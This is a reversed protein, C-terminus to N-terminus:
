TNSFPNLKRTVPSTTIMLPIVPNSATNIVDDINGTVSQGRGFNFCGENLMTLPIDETAPKESWSFILNGRALDHPTEQALNERSFLVRQAIDRGYAM